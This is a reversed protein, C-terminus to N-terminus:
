GEESEGTTEEGAEIPGEREELEEGAEEVEEEFKKLEGWYHTVEGIIIFAWIFAVAVYPSITGAVALGAFVGIIYVVQWLEM